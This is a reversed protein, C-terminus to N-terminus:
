TAPKSQQSKIISEIHKTINDSSGTDKEQTSESLPSSSRECIAFLPGGVSAAVYQM